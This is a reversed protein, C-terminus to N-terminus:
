LSWNDTKINWKSISKLKKEVIVLFKQERDSKHVLAEPLILKKSSVNMKQSFDNM